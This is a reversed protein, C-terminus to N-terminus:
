DDMPTCKVKKKMRGVARSRNTRHDGWNAIEGGMKGGWSARELLRVTFSAEEKRVSRENEAPSTTSKGIETEDLAFRKM